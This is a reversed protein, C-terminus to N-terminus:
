AECTTALSAQNPQPSHEAFHCLWDLETVRGGLVSFARADPPTLVGYPVYRGAALVPFVAACVTDDGVQRARVVNHIPLGPSNGARAIEIEAGVLEEPAYVILAGADGGIDIVLADTTV